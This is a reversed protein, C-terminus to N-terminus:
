LELRCLSKDVRVTFSNQLYIVHLQWCTLIIEINLEGLYKNFIEDLINSLIMTEDSIFRFMQTYCNIVFINQPSEIEYTFEEKEPLFDVSITRFTEHQFIQFM